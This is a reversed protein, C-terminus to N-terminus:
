AGVMVEMDLRKVDLSGHYLIELDLSDVDFSCGPPAM